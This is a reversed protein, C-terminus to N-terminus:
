AVFPAVFVFACPHLRLFSQTVNTSLSLLYLPGDIRGVKQASLPCFMPREVEFGRGVGKGAEGVPLFAM